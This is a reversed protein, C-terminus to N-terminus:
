TQQISSDSVRDPLYAEQLIDEAKHLCSISSPYREFNIQQYMTQSLTYSTPPIANPTQQIGCAPELLPLVYQNQQQLTKEDKKWQLFGWRVKEQLSQGNQPQNKSQSNNRCNTIYAESNSCAKSTLNATRMAHWLWSDAEAKSCGNIVNIQSFVAAPAASLSLKWTIWKRGSWFYGTSYSKYNYNITIKNAIQIKGFSCAFSVVSGIVDQCIWYGYGQSM